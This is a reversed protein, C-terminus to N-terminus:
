ADRRNILVGALLLPVLAYLVCIVLGMSPSPAGDLPPRTSILANGATWLNWNSPWTIWDKLNAAVLPVVFVLGFIASVAGATHRILAGLGLGLLTLATLYVGAGAVARLAAHDSLSVDLHISRLGLQAVVFSVLSLLEGFVLAVAGLVLAKGLLVQRRRPTVAFTTRIQGTMYESTIALVGIVGFALQAFALGDFSLNVPDFAAKDVASWSPYDKARGTASFLGGLVAVAFAATLTLPTSRISRLKTWESRLM